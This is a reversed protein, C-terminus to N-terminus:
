CLRDEKKIPNIFITNKTDKPAVRPTGEPTVRPTDNPTVRPIDEYGVRPTSVLTM